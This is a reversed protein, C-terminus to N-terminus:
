FTPPPGLVGKNQDHSKLVSQGSCQGLQTGVSMKLGLIIKVLYLEEWYWILRHHGECSDCELMGTSTDTQCISLHNHM